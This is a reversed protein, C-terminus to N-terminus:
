PTGGTPEWAGRQSNLAPMVLEIIVIGPTGSGTAAGGGAGYGVANLPVIANSQGLGFPGNGGDNHSSGNVLLGSGSATGGVGSPNGGTATAITGFSTTGGVGGVTVPVSNGDGVWWTIFGAGGGGASCAGGNAGGGCGTIKYLEGFKSQFTGSSTFLLPAGMNMPDAPNTRWPGVREFGIAGKGPGFAARNSM